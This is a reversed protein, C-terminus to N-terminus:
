CSKSIELKNLPDSAVIGSEGFYNRKDGVKDPDGDARVGQEKINSLQDICM